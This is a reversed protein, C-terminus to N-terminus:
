ICVFFGGSTIVAPSLTEVTHALSMRLTLLTGTDSKEFTTHCHNDPAPAPMHM